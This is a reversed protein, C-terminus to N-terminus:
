MRSEVIATMTYSTELSGDVPKSGELETHKEKICERERSLLLWEWLRPQELDTM